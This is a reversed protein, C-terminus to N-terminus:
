PPLRSFAGGRLGDRLSARRAEEPSAADPPEPSADGDDLAATWPTMAPRSANPIPADVGSRPPAPGLRTRYVPGWVVANAIHVGIRLSKARRTEAGM